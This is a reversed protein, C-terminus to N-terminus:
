VTYRFDPADDAMESTDVPANRDAFGHLQDRRANEYRYYATMVLSCLAMIYLLACTVGFGRFYRPADSNPYLNSGLVSGCQGIAQFLPIGAARKSESGMNYPFWSIALGISTYTSACIMFTALYKVHLNEQVILLLYGTGGLLGALTLPIGRSQLRDSVPMTIILVAAGVVYPPVTFIQAQAGQYGLDSIITPLFAALASAATNAGFYVIGYVYIKWDRIAMWVHRMNITRPKEKLGGRSMRMVALQREDENLWTATDPRDPLIKICLLGVIVAPFGEIIFLLRWNQIRGTIHQVGYAILGGFAGAVSACSFWTGLRAGIEQRTFFYTFYLSINPSFMSEFLGVLFRAVFINAFNYSLAQMACCFGWGTAAVGLWFNQSFKKGMVTAPLQFIIYAFYFSTNVLAYKLGSPDGDLIDQPLGMIRANGLNSRDLYGLLYVLMLMPLILRDFKRVLQRELEKDVSGVTSVTRQLPLQPYPYDGVELFPEQPPLPKLELAEGDGGGNPPRTFQFHISRPSRASTPTSLMPESTHPTLPSLPLLPPPPPPPPKSM